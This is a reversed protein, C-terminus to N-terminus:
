HTRRASLENSLPGEGANGVASVRYYFTTRKAVNADTYSTVAGVTALLTEGGSSTGRYIKYGTIPSSGSSSPADWSLAVDSGTVDASALSPAGPPIAPPPTTNRLVVLGHNYDAIVVDPSGDGNVDGVALGHPNYHSAYPISYLTEAALTGDPRQLYVGAENWGGHLVVVDASGDLNLDAVDVPEPIDLSGYTVPATLGGSAQGALVDLFSAPSNGGGSVVVDNRGDGTVDGVGIGHVGYGGSAVTYPVAPGFGGGALQPVVSVNPGTGQGSLVVIDDLGDGTVDAVELDEYGAHQVAYTVPAALGGAGDNCLVGVTNTAWGVSAVDLRGDGCLRGLRLKGSDTTQYLTPSGLTGNALQPFVQVGLGSLGVVVDARGDGTIDGVAVSDPKQTYTAATAYSVPARLTGDAAQSFVWLRYDASPDFNYATTMVVDNRGDGTVDGVAVADPWSGVPYAQYPQFLGPPPSKGPATASIGNSLPGEGVSNIASVQYTYAIGPEVDVDTYTDVLGLTVIPTAGSGGTSRYVRYGTLSSGGDSSPATWQLSIGVTAPTASVLTPAGPVHPKGRAAASAACVLSLVLSAAIAGRGMDERYSQGLGTDISHNL